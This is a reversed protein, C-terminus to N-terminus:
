GTGARPLEAAGRADAAEVTNVVHAAHQYLSEARRDSDAVAKGFTARIWDTRATLARDLASAAGRDTVFSDVARSVTGNVADVARTFRGAAAIVESAEDMDLM